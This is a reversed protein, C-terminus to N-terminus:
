PTNGAALFGDIHLRNGEAVASLEWRGLGALATLRPLWTQEFAAEDIASLLSEQAAFRGLQAAASVLAPWHGQVLVGGAGYGAAAEPSSLIWQMATERTAAYWIGERGAFAATLPDGWLPALEGPVKNWQYPIRPRDRLMWEWPNTGLSPAKIRGALVPWPLVDTRDLGLLALATTGAEANAWDPYRLVRHLTALPMLDLRDQAPPIQGLGAIVQKAVELLHAPKATQVTLICDLPLWRPLVGSPLPGGQWPLEGHCLLRGENRLSITAQPAGLADGGPGAWRFQFDTEPADIGRPMTKAAAIQILVEADPSIAIGYPTRCYWVEEAEPPASSSAARIVEPSLAHVCAVSRPAPQVIAAWAERTQLFLLSGTIERRLNLLSGDGGSRRLLAHAEEDLCAALGLALLPEIPSDGSDDLLAPFDPTYFAWRVDLGAPWHSAPSGPRNVYWGGALGAGACLALVLGYVRACRPRIGPAPKLTESM